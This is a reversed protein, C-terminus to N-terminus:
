QRHEYSPVSTTSSDLANFRVTLAAYLSRAAFLKLFDGSDIEFAEACLITTAPNDLGGPDVVHEGREDVFILSEGLRGVSLPVGYVAGVKKAMAILVSQVEDMNRPPRNWTSLQESMANFVEQRRESYSEKANRAISQFQSLPMKQLKQAERAEQRRVERAKKERSKRQAVRWDERRKEALAALNPPDPAFPDASPAPWMGPKFKVRRM